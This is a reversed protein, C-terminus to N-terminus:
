STCYSCLLMRASVVCSAAMALLATMVFGCVAEASAHVSTRSHPAAAADAADRQLWPRWSRMRREGASAEGGLVDAAKKKWFGWCPKFRTGMGSAFGGGGLATVFGHASSSKRGGAGKPSPDPAGRVAGNSCDAMIQWVHRPSQSGLSGGAGSAVAKHAGKEAPASAAAGNGVAASSAAPTCRKSHFVTKSVSRPSMGGMRSGGSAACTITKEGHPSACKKSPSGKLSTTTTPNPYPDLRQGSGGNSLRPGASSPRRPARGPGKKAGTPIDTTHLAALKTRLQHAEQMCLM